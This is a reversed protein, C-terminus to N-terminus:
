ESVPHPSLLQIGKGQDAALRLWDICRFKDWAARESTLVGVQMVVRCSM